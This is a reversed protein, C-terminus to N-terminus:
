DRTYGRVRSAKRNRAEAYGQASLASIEEVYAFIAEGATQLTDPRLNQARGFASAHRWAVRGGVRYATLLCSIDRGESFEVKGLYRFGSMWYQRVLLPKGINDVAHAIAHRIGYIIVTGFPGALPRAYEPVADQVQRLIDKALVDVRPSFREGLEQPLTAFLESARGLDCARAREVRDSRAHVRPGPLM